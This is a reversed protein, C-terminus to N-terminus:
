KLASYVFKIQEKSAPSVGCMRNNQNFHFRDNRGNLKWIDDSWNGTVGCRMKPAFRLHFCKLRSLDVDRSKTARQAAERGLCRGSRPRVYEVRFNMLDVQPLDLTRSSGRKNLYEILERSRQDFFIDTSCIRRIRLFLSFPIAKTTYNPHCLTQPRQISIQEPHPQFNDM